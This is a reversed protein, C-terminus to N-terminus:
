SDLSSRSLSMALIVLFMGFNTVGFCLMLVISHSSTSSATSCISFPFAGPGSPNVISEKWLQQSRTLSSIHSTTSSDPFVPHTRVVKLTVKRESIGFSCAASEGPLNLGIDRHLTTRFIIVFTIALQNFGKTGPSIDGLFYPKTSPFCIKSPIM